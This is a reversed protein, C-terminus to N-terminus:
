HRCHYPSLHLIFTLLSMTPPLSFLVHCEGLLDPKEPVLDPDIKGANADETEAMEEHHVEATIVSPVPDAVPEPEPEAEAKAKAKAAKKQTGKSKTKTRARPTKVKKVSKLSVPPSTSDSDSSTSSGDSSSSSSISSTADEKDKSKAGKKRNAFSQVKHKNLIKEAYEGKKQLRRWRWVYKRIRDRVGDHDGRLGYIGDQREAAKADLLNSLAHESGKKFKLIGGAEEIDEALQKQTTLPLGPRSSTSSRSATEGLSSVVSEDGVAISPPQIDPSLLPKKASVRNKTKTPTKKALKKPTADASHTKVM